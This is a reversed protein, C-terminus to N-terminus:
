SCLRKEWSPLVQDRPPQGMFNNQFGYLPQWSYSSTVADVTGEALFWWTEGPSTRVESTQRRGMWSVLILGSLDAPWTARQPTGPIPSM